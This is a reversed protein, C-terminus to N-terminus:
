RWAKAPCLLTRFAPTGSPLICVAKSKEAKTSNLSLFCFSVNLESMLIPTSFRQDLDSGRANSAQPLTVQPAGQVDWVHVKRSTGRHYPRDRRPRGRGRDTRRLRCPASERRSSPNIVLCHLLDAKTDRCHDSSVYKIIRMRGQSLFDAEDPLHKYM